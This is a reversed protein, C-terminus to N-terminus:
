ALSASPQSEVPSENRQSKAIPADANLKKLRTIFFELESLTKKRNGLLQSNNEFAENLVASYRSPLSNVYEEVSKRIEIRMKSFSILAEQKNNEIISNAQKYIEQYVDKAKPRNLFSIASSIATLVVAVELGAANGLGMRTANVLAKGTQQFQQNNNLDFANAASVGRISAAGFQAQLFEPVSFCQLAAIEKEALFNLDKQTPKRSIIFSFVLLLTSIISITIIYQKQFHIHPLFLSGGLIAITLISSMVWRILRRKKAANIIEERTTIEEKVRNRFDALMNNINKLYEVSINQVAETFQKVRNDVDKAIGKLEEFYKGSNRVSKDILKQDARKDFFLLV